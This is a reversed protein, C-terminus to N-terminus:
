DVVKWGGPLAAPAPKSAGYTSDFKQQYQKASENSFKKLDSLAKKMAPLTQARDLNQLYTELRMGEKESLQGFGTAGTKSAAKLDTMTNVVLKSKLSDLLVSADHAASGPIKPVGLAGAWGTNSGLGPHALLADINDSMRKMGGVVGHVANETNARDQAAKIKKESLAAATKAQEDATRATDNVTRATENRITAERYPDPTFTMTGDPARQYGGAPVNQPQMMKGMEMMQAAGPVGAVGALVGMRAVDMGSAPKPASAATQPAPAGGTVKQIYSSPDKTKFGGYAALAKNMDGGSQKLLLQLYQDAADRSQAKDFPNFKIGQQKLMEVTSPLFQYAGMAREKSGAIPPGVALPNGSSEVQMLNDLIHTPTGFKGPTGAAADSPASSTAGTPAPGFMGSAGMQEMLKDQMQMKREEAKARREEIAQQREAAINQAAEQATMHEMQANNYTTRQALEAERLQADRKHIESQLKQQQMQSMLGFAQAMGGPQRANSLMTAGAMFAPDSFLGGIQQDFPTPM